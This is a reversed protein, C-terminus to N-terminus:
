REGDAGSGPGTIGARSPADSGPRITRTEKAVEEDQKAWERRREEDSKVQPEHGEQPEDKPEPDEPM